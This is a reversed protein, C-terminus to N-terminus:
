LAIDAQRRPLHAVGLDAVQVEARSARDELVQRPDIGRDGVSREELPGREEGRAVARDGARSRQMEDAQDPRAADVGIVPVEDGQDGNRARRPTGRTRPGRAGRRDPCAAM